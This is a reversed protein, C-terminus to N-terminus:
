INKTNLYDIKASVPLEIVPVKTTCCIKRPIGPM